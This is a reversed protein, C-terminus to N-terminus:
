NLSHSLIISSADGLLFHSCLQPSGGSLGLPGTEGGVGGMRSGAGASRQSKGPPAPLPQGPCTSAQTKTPGPTSVAPPPTDKSRRCFPLFVSDGGPCHIIFTSGMLPVELPELGHSRSFSDAASLHYRRACTLCLLPLYRGTFVSSM